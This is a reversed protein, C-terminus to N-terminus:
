IKPKNTGISDPFQADCSNEGMMASVDASGHNTDGNASNMTEEQSNESFGTISDDGGILVNSISSSSSTNVNSPLGRLRSPKHKSPDRINEKNNNM